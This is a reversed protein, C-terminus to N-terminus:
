RNTDPPSSPWILTRIEEREGKGHVSPLFLASYLFTTVVKFLKIERSNQAHIEFLDPVQSCDLIPFSSGCSEELKMLFRDGGNLPM